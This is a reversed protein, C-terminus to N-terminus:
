DMRAVEYSGDPQIIALWEGEYFRITEDRLKTEFLLRMTPDGVYALGNPVMTFGPMPQWGGYRYNFDIQERAPRPDNESLFGPIYGLMDVHARPHKPIWIMM